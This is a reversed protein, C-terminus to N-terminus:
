AVVVGVDEFPPSIRQVTGPDVGFQKTIVRAGPRGPTALADSIRKGARLSDSAV